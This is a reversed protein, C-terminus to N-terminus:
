RNVTFIELLGDTSNQKYTSTATEVDFVSILLAEKKSVLKGNVKVTKIKTDLISKRFEEQLQNKFAKPEEIDADVAADDNYVNSQINGELVEIPADIRKLSEEYQATQIEEVKKLAVEEVKAGGTAINRNLKIVIAGGKAQEGFITVAEESSLDMRSEMMNAKINSLEVFRIIYGNVVVLPKPTDQFQRYTRDSDAGIAVTTTALLLAGLIWKKRMVGQNFLIFTSKVILKVVIKLM